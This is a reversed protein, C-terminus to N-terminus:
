RTSRLEAPSALMEDAVSFPGGAAKSGGGRGEGTGNGWGRERHCSVKVRNRYSIM